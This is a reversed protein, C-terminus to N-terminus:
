AIATPLDDGVYRPNGLLVLLSGLVPSDVGETLTISAWPKGEALDAADFEIIYMEGGGATTTFGSTTADTVDGATDGSAVRRYKFAIAEAGTGSSDSASNVTVAATGTAGVGLQLVAMCKGYKGLSFYDSTPDGNNVDALPAIGTVVKINESLLGKISM